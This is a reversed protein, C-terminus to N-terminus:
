ANEEEGKHVEVGAVMTASGLMLSVKWDGKRERNVMVGTTYCMFAARWEPSVKLAEMFAEYVSEKELDDWIIFDTTIDKVSQFDAFAGKFTHDGDLYVTAFPGVVPLPHSMAVVLDVRDKLRWSDINERWTDVDGLYRDSFWSDKLYQMPDICTIRNKTFMSALLATSGFRTGIELHPGDSLSLCQAILACTWPSSISPSADRPKWVLREVVLKAGMYGKIYAEEISKM